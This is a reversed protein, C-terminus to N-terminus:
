YTLDKIKSPSFNLQAIGFEKNYRKKSIKFKYCLFDKIAKDWEEYQEDTLAYTKYFRNTEGNLYIGDSDKKYEKSVETLTTKFFKYLWVDVLDESGIEKTKKDKISNFMEHIMIKKM